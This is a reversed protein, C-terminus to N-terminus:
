LQRVAFLFPSLLKSNESWSTAVLWSWLPSTRSHVTQPRLWGERSQLQHPQLWEDNRIRGVALYINRNVSRWAKNTQSNITARQVPSVISREKATRQENTSETMGTCLGRSLGTWNATLLQTNHCSSVRGCRWRGGVSLSPVDLFLGSWKDEMLLTGVLPLSHIVGPVQFLVNQSPM